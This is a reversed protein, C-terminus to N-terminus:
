RVLVFRTRQEAAGVQARIWYMGATAPQGSTERADWALAHRGTTLYGRYLTSVCRGALDYVRADVWERAPLELMFTAPGAGPNPRAPHLQLRAIERGPELESAGFQLQVDDIYWGEAVVAGDSSFIFRLRANGTFGSLDITEQEWAHSGSFVATGAPMGPTGSSRILYPYGGEPTLRQWAGGDISIEVVGGDYCYGPYGSSVEASIWHWFTVAADDPMSFPASQLVAYLQNGYNASGTGGCKWSTAGEYTHNRYTELHWQDTYGSSGVYHTWGGAGSEMDDAFVEGIYLACALTRAYGGSGQLDLNLTAPYMAPAGPDITVAFDAAALGEPALTGYAQPTPDVTVYPSAPSLTGSLDAVSVDGGNAVVLTLIIVEGAEAIGDGDGGATDDIISQVLALAPAYATRSFVLTDPDETVLLQFEIEHGNPVDPDISFIFPTTNSRLGQAPIAGFAGQEEGITVYADDCLLTGAVASAEFPAINRLTLTLEITEGYELVGNGNGSSGGLADDDWEDSDLVLYPATFQVPIATHAVAAVAAMTNYTPYDQPYREIRDNASHYWPCFDDGWAEDEIGTVAAYGHTWFSYHDSGSLTQQVVVPEVHTPVFELIADSLIQAFSLSAADTYIVLDSPAPDTGAYSIMDFNYCAVVDEGAAAIMDVYADSGVLGQEEGNFGVFKITYQFTYNSLVRAAELFAASGSANDDAGPAHNQPDESTSDFHGTIYVVRDPYVLGPLIGIVNKRLGSQNYTHFQAELGFSVFENYMYNASAENAATNYYRTEFDDLAQWRSVYETQSVDAVMQSILPDFDTRQREPAPAGEAAGVDARPWSKPSLSIRVPQVLGHQSARSAETLQPVEEATWLLVAHGQRLLVRTKGAFQARAPDELLMVFYHGPESSVSEIVQLGEIQTAAAILGQPLLVLALDQGLYLLWAEKTLPQLTAPDPQEWPLAALVGGSGDWVAVQAAAPVPRIGSLLAVFLLCAPVALALRLHSSARHTSAHSARPSAPALHARHM